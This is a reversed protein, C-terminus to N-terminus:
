TVTETWVSSTVTNFNGDGSYVAKIKHTGAKAWSMTLSVQGNSGLTKRALVTSGDYFTVTGTPTGAGPATPVITATFTVQTNTSISNQPATVAGATPAKTVKQTIAASTSSAFDTSGEYVASISHSGVALSSTSYTAQGAGNLTGPGLATNGDIFMVTGTPMGSGPKTVTVTATFTVNQGFVSSRDSSTVVSKTTAQNITQTIAASNGSQYHGDSAYSATISNSGLPLSSTTLTAKGSSNLTGPGLPVNGAFFTVTGTPTGSGPANASVTATLTISQGFVATAASSKVTVTTPDEDVNQALPTSTTALFSSNGSYSVTISNGGIGLAFATTAYSAKSQSNLTVTSLVTAGDMFTVSGTPKGSGSIVPAVTASFTVKQGYDSPDASSTVAVTTAGVYWTFAQSTSAGEGDNASVAPSYSAPGGTIKGSILGTSSNISLGSPLGTASFSWSDGSPLGGAQIQLSATGAVPSYQTGPNTISLASVNWTYDQTASGGEGDSAAVSAAYSQASGAITGTILGSSPNISLGSPLSASYTWTDGSPLGSAILQLSVSDGVANDQTGPNTVSLTSVNWTFDQTATAGQGDGATVVASYTNASGTITGTILGTAPDISLGNPLGTASYTWSDGSPLGAAQIQLSSSDGVAGNQTGPNTESLTSVNWAFDQTSSGQDGDNATVSASYAETTGTITGTILGTGTNISLGSPLGTASFTWSDGAPLGSAQVQLSVSDGVAGNQTGPNAVSIVNEYFPLSTGTTFNQDGNYVATINNTGGPLDVALSATNTSPPNVEDELSNLSATGLVTSGDMFTVTGIPVFTTGNPTVSATLTVQGGASIPNASSSVGVTTTELVPLMITSQGASYNSDGSYSAVIHYHAADWNSIQISAVGDVVPMTGLTIPTSNLPTNAGETYSYTVNGTPTAGGSTSALTTTLSFQDGVVAPDASSVTSISYNSYGGMAFLTGGNDSYVEGNTGIATPTYPVAIGTTIEVSNTVLGTGLNWEYTYGDENNMFVSDTAPDVATGNTCFERVADPDGAAADDVDPSPSVFTMVQQMVQLNPDADYNPDLQTAYPDLVAMENVGNGGYPEGVEVNAYNNYKALILYPSTGTYSPVMSTPIISPTDDWGFAGPAFETGLDGSFHLLFGRSGNYPNGFIGMFVTGDPAVMPGGSSVDILGGGQGSSPDLLQVSYEPQLTSSNLGVLYSDYENGNLTYGSDNIRLYLVSEDNSLAPASGMAPNWNGDNSQGVAQYADEFIGTGSSTIRAVGGDTIDSPNSGTVTFGFFVNGASDVELPTNIFISSNYAAENATYYSTGYFAEQYVTPTTSGPNDPHNIYDITGGPGPFYVRDTVPDYVPQFPPLWDYAPEIYSAGNPNYAYTGGGAFAGNGSTGNLQFTNPGTVTVTFTGNAATNGQVGGITVSDGTTLGATASTIVIPSTNSADTISGTLASTWLVAGTAGNIGEVFFNQANQGQASWTVKIPVIVTNGPTFVPDGYHAYGWPELDLSTSWIVRDIPQAAVQAVDTHQANGAFNNWVASTASLLTRDELREIASQYSFRRRARTSRALRLWRFWM